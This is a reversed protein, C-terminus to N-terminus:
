QNIKLHVFLARFLKHGNANECSVLDAPTEGVKAKIYLTMLAVPAEIKLEWTSSLNRTGKPQVSFNIPSGKEDVLNIDLSGFHKVKQSLGIQLSQTEQVYFLGVV